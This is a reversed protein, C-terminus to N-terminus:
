QATLRGGKKKAESTKKASAYWAGMVKEANEIFFFPEFEALWEMFSLETLESFDRRGNATEAMIYALRAVTEVGADQGTVEKMLDIGFVKRYWIPTAANSALVLEREETKITTIM